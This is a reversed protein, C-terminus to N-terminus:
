VQFQSDLSRTLLTNCKIKGSEMLNGTYAKLVVTIWAM